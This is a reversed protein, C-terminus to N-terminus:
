NRTEVPGLVAAFDPELALRVWWDDVATFSMNSTNTNTSVYRFHLSPQDIMPVFRVSVRQWWQITNPPFRWGNVTRPMNDNDTFTLTGNPLLGQWLSIDPELTTDFVDPQDGYAFYFIDATDDITQGALWFSMAYTLNAGPANSIAGVNTTGLTARAPNNNSGDVACYAGNTGQPLIVEIPRDVNCHIWTNANFWAGPIDNVMRAAFQFVGDTVDLNAGPDGYYLVLPDTTSGGAPIDRLIRAVIVLQNTGVAFQDSWQHDLRDPGQYVALDAGGALSRGLTVLEEHAVPIEITVDAPAEIGNNPTVLQRYGYNGAFPGLGSDIPGADVGTDIPPGDGPLADGPDVDGPVVDGPDADPFGGDPIVVDPSGSDKPNIDADMVGGDYAVTSTDPVFFAEVKDAVQQEGEFLAVDHYGTRLPQALQVDVMLLRPSALRVGDGDIRRIVESGRRIEFAMAPVAVQGQSNSVDFTLGHLGFGRGTVRLTFETRALSAEGEDAEVDDIATPTRQTSPCGLLASLLLAKSTM